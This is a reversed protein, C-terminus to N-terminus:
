DAKKKFNLDYSLRFIIERSPGPLPPHGGDYPQIFNIKQNLADYVGAGISLGKLPTNYRVFFNLLIVPDLQEYVSNDLSDLATIAWRKGYVSATANVSLDKTINWCANLNFRHNAFALLSAPEETQYVAVKDTDKIPLDATYFAYNMTIHGWKAKIRYEAEIGRTGSKGYNTYLDTNSSDQSTYYIIPDRTQIDYVNVTFISKRTVQYGLELEMVQTFEPKMGLSDASSINEISPARFANSYLAKFHFRRYKKTLGVRPVFADGYENHKDFRAGVIFNVFRTKILGQTFFAYNYYSVTQEGNSFYSSDTNDKAKDQYFESGV